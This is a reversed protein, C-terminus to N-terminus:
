TPFLIHGVLSTSLVNDYRNRKLSWLCWVALKEAVTLMRGNMANSEQISKGDMTKTEYGIM